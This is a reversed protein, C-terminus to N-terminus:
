KAGRDPSARPGTRACDFDLKFWNRLGGRKQPVQADLGLVAFLDHLTQKCAKTEKEYDPNPSGLVEEDPYDLGPDTNVECMWVKLNTDLMLDMGFIEFHRDPVIKGSRKVAPASAIYHTTDKAIQLIQKWLAQRDFNTQTKALYRELEKVRIQQGKGIVPKERLFNEKNKETANLGMNTVHVPPDFNVGMTKSSLTYPKTAFLCQGNEQVFAEPPDLNTILLHIRMHFKYGGVLLPDALYRQVVSQSRSEANVVNKSFEPDTGHFVAIGSGGYDNKPKAIWYNSRPRVNARCEKLLGNKEQPLIYTTPYWSKDRFGQTLNTKFLATETGPFKCIRYSGPHQEKLKDWNNVVIKCFDDRQIVRENATGPVRYPFRGLMWLAREPLPLSRLRYGDEVVNDRGFVRGPTQRRLCAEFEKIHFTPKDDDNESAHCAKTSYRWGRARLVDRLMNGWSVEFPADFARLHRKPWPQGVPATARMLRVDGCESEQQRQRKAAPPKLSGDRPRKKLGGASPRQRRYQPVRKQTRPGVAM